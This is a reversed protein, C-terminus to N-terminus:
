DVSMPATSLRGLNSIELVCKARKAFFLARYACATFLYSGRSLYRMAKAKPFAIQRKPTLKPKKIMRVDVMEVRGVHKAAAEARTSSCDPILAVGRADQVM